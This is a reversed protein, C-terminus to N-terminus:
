VTHEQKETFTAVIDHHNLVLMAYLHEQEKAHQMFRIKEHLSVNSKAQERYFLALKALTKKHTALASMSDLARVCEEYDSM